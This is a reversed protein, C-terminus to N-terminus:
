RIVTTISTAEMGDGAPHKKTAGDRKNNLITSDNRGCSSVIGCVEHDTCHNAIPWEMDSHVAGHDQNTISAQMLTSRLYWTAHETLSGTM